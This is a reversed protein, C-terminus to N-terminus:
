LLLRASPGQPVLAAAEVASSVGCKVAPSLEDAGPPVGGVPGTAM